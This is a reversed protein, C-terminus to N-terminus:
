RDEAAPDPAGSGDIFVTFFGLVSMLVLGIVLPYAVLSILRLLRQNFKVSRRSLTELLPGATGTEQAAGLAAVEGVSLIRLEGLAEALSQGEAMLAALRGALRTGIAADEEPSSVAILAPELPLGRRTLGAVYALLVGRRLHYMGWMTIAAIIVALLFLAIEFM